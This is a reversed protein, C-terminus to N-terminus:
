RAEAPAAASFHAAETELGFFSAEVGVTDDVLWRGCTIRGGSRMDANLHQDGFLITGGPLGSMGAASQAASIPGTNVHSSAPSGKVWVGLYELNAWIPRSSHIDNWPVNTTPASRTAAEMFGVGMPGGGPACQWTQNALPSTRIALTPNTDGVQCNSGSVRKAASVQAHAITASLSLQAIAALCVAIRIM